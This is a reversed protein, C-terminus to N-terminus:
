KLSNVDDIFVINMYKGSKRFELNNIFSLVVFADIKMAIENIIDNQFHMFRNSQASNIIAVEKVETQNKLINLIIKSFFQVQEDNEYISLRISAIVFSILLASACIKIQLYM